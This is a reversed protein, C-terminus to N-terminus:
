KEFYPATDGKVKSMMRNYNEVTTSTHLVAGNKLYVVVGAHDEEMSAIDEALVKQNAGSERLVLDIEKIKQNKIQNDM